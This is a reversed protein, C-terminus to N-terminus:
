RWACGRIARRRPASRRHRQDEGFLLHHHAVVRAGEKGVLRRDRMQAFQAVRAGGVPERARQPLRKRLHSKAAQQQGLTQAPRPEAVDFAADDHLLDAAVQRRRRKQRRRKEARRRQQAVAIAGAVLFQQRLEGGAVQKQREGDVLARLVRGARGRELRLAAAVTEGKAALFAEHDVAVDSIKKDNRRAAGARRTLGVAEREKEDVGLRLPDVGLAGHDDIGVIRRTDAEIADLDVGIGHDALDIAAPRQEFAHEVHAAGRDGGLQGSQALLCEGAREAVELLAPLEALRNARELRQLVAGRMQEGLEFDGLGRHELRQLREISIEIAGCRHNGDGLRPRSRARRERHLFRHLHVAADAHGVLEVDAQEHLARPDALLKEAVGAEVGIAEGPQVM